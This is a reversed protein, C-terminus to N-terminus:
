HHRGMPGLAAARWHHRRASSSRHRKDSLGEEEVQSTGRRKESIRALPAQERVRHTEHQINRFPTNARCSCTPELAAECRMPHARGASQVLVARSPHPGAHMNVHM